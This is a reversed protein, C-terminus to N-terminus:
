AAFRCSWRDEQYDRVLGRHLEVLFAVTTSLKASSVEKGGAVRKLRGLQLLLYLHAGQRDIGPRGLHNRVASLVGDSANFWFGQFERVTGLYRELERVGSELLEPKPDGARVCELAVMAQVTAGSLTFTREYMEFRGRRCMM